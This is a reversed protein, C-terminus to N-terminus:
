LGFNKGHIEGRYKKLISKDIFFLDDWKLKDKIALNICSQVFDKNQIFDTLIFNFKKHTLSNLLQRLSMSIESEKFEIVYLTAKDYQPLISDATYFTKLMEVFKAADSQNLFREIFPNSTKRVDYVSFNIRVEEQRDIIVNYNMSTETLRELEKLFLETFEVSKINSLDTILNRQKDSTDTSNESIFDIFTDIHMM